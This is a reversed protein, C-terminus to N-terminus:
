PLKQISNDLVIFNNKYSEIMREIAEEYGMTEDGNIESDVIPWMVINEEASYKNSLAANRIFQEMDSLEEKANDWCAKLVEVFEKNEFLKGYYLANTIRLVSKGPTFTHWDFDWAPGAKLKDKRDKYM